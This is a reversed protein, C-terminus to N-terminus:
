AEPQSRLAIRIRLGEYEEFRVNLKGSIPGEVRFGDSISAVEIDRGPPITLSADVSRILGDRPREDAVVLEVVYNGTENETRFSVSRDSQVFYRAAEEDSWSGFPAELTSDFVCIQSYSVFVVREVSM